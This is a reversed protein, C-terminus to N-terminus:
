RHSSENGEAGGVPPPTLGIRAEPKVIVDWDRGLAEDATMGTIETWRPNTYVYRNHADTQFIGIPAAETLLRLQAASIQAQRAEAALREAKAYLGAFVSVKARLENPDVPACIFDVAGEVYHDATVVEDSTYATIFIIPTMESQRRKRIIGATEFGDMDPMRVDLLIVAFDEVMLCRLADFGSEAEVIRFGLPLLISRLALRKGSNDDVILVAIEVQDPPPLPGPAGPALDTTEASSM